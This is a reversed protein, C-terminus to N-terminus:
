RGAIKKLLSVLVQFIGNEEIGSVMSLVESVALLAVAIGTLVDM